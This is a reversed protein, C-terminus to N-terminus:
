FKSEIFWVCYYKTIFTSTQRCFGFDYKVYFNMLLICPLLKKQRSFFNLIANLFGKTTSFELKGMVLLKIKLKLSFRCHSFFSVSCIYARILICPPFHLWCVCTELKKTKKAKVNVEFNEVRRLTHGINQWSSSFVIELSQMWEAFVVLQGIRLFRM